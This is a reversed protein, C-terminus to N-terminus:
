DGQKIPRRGIVETSGCEAFDRSQRGAIGHPLKLKRELQQESVVSAPEVRCRELGFRLEGSAVRPPVHEVTWREELRTSNRYHDGARSQDRRSWFHKAYAFRASVAHGAAIESLCTPQQIQNPSVVVIVLPCATSASIL